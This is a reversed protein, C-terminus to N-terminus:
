ECGNIMWETFQERSIPSDMWSTDPEPLQLAEFVTLWKPIVMHSTRGAKTIWSLGCRQEVALAVELSTIADQRVYDLVEQRKGDRWMQPALAGNMGDPKGDLGLGKAIADLGIPFGKICFPHLLTDVSHHLALEVCLDHLGSEMALLRWDFATGNHTVLTYGRLAHLRLRQVLDVCEGRTMRETPKGDEDKGHGTMTQIEGDRGVGAMAWCSIGLPAHAWWDTEGDPLIASIEVDFALFNKQTVAEPIM